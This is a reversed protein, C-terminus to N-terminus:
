SLITLLSMLIWSLEFLLRQYTLRLRVQTLGLINLVELSNYALISKQESKIKIDIVRTTLSVLTVRMCNTGGLLHSAQASGLQWLPVVVSDWQSVM